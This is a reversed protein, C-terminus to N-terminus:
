SKSVPLTVMLKKNYGKVVKRLHLGCVALTMSPLFKRPRCLNSFFLRWYYMRGPEKIGLSWLVKTVTVIYRLRLRLRKKSRPPRYERLFTNLRHYYQEPSYITNIIRRYGDVLTQYSMKPTFNITTNDGIMDTPLLRNEKKLRHYLRTNKPAQLLSVMATVIGSKQIFNIQREFISPSDNDFGVIFGGQVQIGYNQMKKVSAILDRGKNQYKGCESLSEESPTEIGVFVADFGARVMLGLLEDDDALNVSAETGFSFPRKRNEMWQIIAPLIESKLKVKNGIFNDDVFFVGDHWGQLYLAEMEAILQEKKKTRPKRGNLVIIDCFECNFPCGRSYQLSMTAYHRMDVLSWLPIPSDTIDPWDSSTYIHKACNKELDNLFPFLTTEAENLVFHDVGTFQDWESTFLPGGAVVKVGLKNCRRIVEEASRRQISMASIFVLNAGKIDADTLMGVNMDVLKKKWDRPLMAAVTLLGLPPHTAKKSVFKLAHKFSSITDPY